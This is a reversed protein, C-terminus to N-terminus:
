KGPWPTIILPTGNYGPLEQYIKETVFPMFPHLLTIITKFVHVLVMLAEKDGSKYRDKNEELYVDAIRHWAFDYIQQSADSFRFKDLNKTVGASLMNLESIIQKDGPSKLLKHIEHTYVPVSIGQDPLAEFNMRIFRGINWLKNGFNRMGRIKDESMVIDSGPAAGFILAMRLADAGYQDVM